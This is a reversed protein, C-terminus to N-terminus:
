RRRRKVLAEISCGILMCGVFIAGFNVAHRLALMASFQGILLIIATWIVALVVAWRYLRKEKRWALLGVFLAIAAWTIALAIWIM